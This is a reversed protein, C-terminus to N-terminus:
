LGFKLHKVTFCFMFHEHDTKVLVKFVKSTIFEIRSKTNKNGTKKYFQTCNTRIISFVTMNFWFGVIVIRFNKPLLSYPLANSLLAADKM